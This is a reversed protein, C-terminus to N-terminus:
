IWLLKPFEFWLSPPRVHSCLRTIPTIKSFLGTFFRVWALQNVNYHFEILYEFTFFTLPISSVAFRCLAIVMSAAHLVCSRAFNSTNWDRVKISVVLENILSARWSIACVLALFSLKRAAM